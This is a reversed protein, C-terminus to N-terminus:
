RRKKKQLTKNKKEDMQFTKLNLYASNSLDVQVAGTLNYAQKNLLFIM